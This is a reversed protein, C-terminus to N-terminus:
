RKLLFHAVPVNGDMETSSVIFGCKETYFKINEEKDAPTVLTIKKWDCYIDLIYHFAHTGIGKGQYEPIICLCGLYYEGDGRGAISIAGIPNNVSYIILKQFKEISAEMEERTKGYAPCEGYKVYDAYFAANYINILLDVDKKEARIYRLGMISKMWDSIKAEQM